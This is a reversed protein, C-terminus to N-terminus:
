RPHVLYTILVKGEYGDSLKLTGQRLALNVMLQGSREIGGLAVKQTYITSIDRLERSAGIVSVQEPVVTVRQMILRKALRGSWDVQVAVMKAIPKDLIVQVVSPQVRKLHIGPPLQVNRESLNFVNKGVGARSLDLKVKVQDPRVSKILAGAGSLSLTAFNDSTDFIDMYPDRHKFEIPVDMTILTELRRSFNFWISSICVLSLVAALGLELREKRPGQHHRRHIGAHAKLMRSLELNDHIHILQNGKAVSVQGREESIVVVMADSAEALGVAARHRTGLRHPLDDRLTLPLIAGVEDVRAGRIVAAGDHVPNGNWFISMLMERSLRGQWPIGQQIKEELDDRGPLVILAGIRRRALEYVGETLIQVPTLNRRHPFDWLLARLNKAQLVNGIENRFVIIIILTAGAIIGQMAWSTIILGTYVAVRQVIWLLVIGAIVRLVHTGRFLVYLRFLIYSNLLIDIADQWRIRALIAIFRNL